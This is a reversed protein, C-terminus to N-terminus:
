FNYDHFKNPEKSIWYKNGGKDKWVGYKSLRVRAVYGDLKKSYIWRQSHQNTCHGAFGGSVWEPKWTPDLEANMSRIEICKESIIKTIENPYCDTYGSRNAYKGLAPKEKEKIMKEGLNNNM